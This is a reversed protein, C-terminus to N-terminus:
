LHGSRGPGRRDLAWLAIALAVRDVFTLPNRGTLRHIRALRHRVTNVHLYLEDATRQLSGDHRLFARLTRVHQAGSSRDLAVLPAMLEDVFPDLRGVPQQELLGELSTLGTPGIVGGRGLALEFAARAESVGRALSALPVASGYGCPLALAAAVPAIAAPDSTVALTVDPGAGVVAGPLHAAV